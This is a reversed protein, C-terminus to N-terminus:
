TPKEEKFDENTQLLENQAVPYQLAFSSATLRASICFSFFCFFQRGFM